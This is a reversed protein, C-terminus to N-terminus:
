NQGFQNILWTRMSPIPIMYDKNENRHLVGDQVFREYLELGADFGVNDKFFDIIKEKDFFIFDKNKKLFSSILQCERKDFEDLRQIYFKKKSDSGSALVKELGVTTLKGNTKKLEKFIASTYSTIHHAWCHTEETIKKIWFEINEDNEKGGSEIIWKKLISKEAKKDLAGLNFINKGTFRSIGLKKFVSKTNGLGAVVFVFGKNSQLNHLENAIDLMYERNSDNIYGKIGIRQAEDLVLLTPKRRIEKITKILNPNKSNTKREYSGKLIHFNLGFHFGESVDKSTNNKIWLYLENPDYLSKISIRRVRWKQNRAIEKFEELLASKGVGPSGQILCAEGERKEISESMLGRFHKKEEERGHFFKAKGRESTHYTTKTPKSKNKFLAM